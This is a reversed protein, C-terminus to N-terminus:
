VDLAYLPKLLEQGLAGLGNHQHAVVAGEDVVNGVACQLYAAALHNIILDLVVLIHHQALLAALLLEPCVLVLLLFDCVHLLEYLAETVLGCLGHLHLAAYLLQGLNHRYLDVLDVVGGHVQLEGRAQATAIIWDDAVLHALIVAPMRHEAVNRKGDLAALFHCEHALVALALRREDLTDHAFYWKCACQLNAVVHLYTVERLVLGLQEVLRQGHKVGNVAHRAALYAQPYLVYETREHESALSGVLFDPHETAALAAAQGHDPQQEFGDVQQNEVLRGVVKIHLRLINQFFGDLSEVASGDDDAVVTLEEVTKDGLNILEASATHALM